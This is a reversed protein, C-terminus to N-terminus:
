AGPITEYFFYTRGHRLLKYPVFNCYIPIKDPNFVIYFVSNTNRLSLDRGTGVTLFM